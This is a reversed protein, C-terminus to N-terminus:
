IFSVKSQRGSFIVITDLCIASGIIGKAGGMNMVQELVQPSTGFRSKFVRNGISVTAERVETEFEGLGPFFDTDKGVIPLAKIMSSSLFSLKAGTVLFCQINRRNLKVPIVPIGKFSEFRITEGELNMLDESFAIKDKNLDIQFDFQSLIDAGIVASIRSRILRGINKVSMGMYQHPISFEADGIRLDKNEGFSIPNGTDILVRDPGIEALLHGEHLYCKYLHVLNTKGTAQLRRAPLPMGQRTRMSQMKFMEGKTMAQSEHFMRKRETRNYFDEREFRLRDARQKLDLILSDILNDDLGLDKLAQAGDILMGAAGDYDGKDALKLANEKVGAAALYAAQLTVNLNPKVAKFEAESIVDVFIPIEQACEETKGEGVDKYSIKILGLETKAKKPMSPIKTELVLHKEQSGFVDGLFFAGSNMIRYSNLQESSVGDVKPIFQIEFNSAALNQLLGLEETFVGRAEEPKDIFYTGGGGMEAMKALLEENYDAGVGITTTTIGESLYKSALEALDGSKTVGVNALGDTLLLIRSINENSLNKKAFIEGQEYGGCLNTRGKSHIEDISGEIFPLDADMRTPPIVPNVNDDFITLSFYDNKGLQSALIKTAEKVNHLKEGSMSGSRDLVVALNLPLSKKNTPIEGSATLMLRVLFQRKEPIKPYDLIAKVKM